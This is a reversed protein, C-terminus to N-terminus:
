DLCPLALHHHVRRGDGCGVDHCAVTDNVHNVLYQHGLLVALEVTLLESAGINACHRFAVGFRDLHDVPLEQWHYLIRVQLLMKGLYALVNNGMQLM